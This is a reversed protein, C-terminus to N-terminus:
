QHPQLPAHGAGLTKGNRSFLIWAGNPPWGKAIMALCDIQIELWAAHNRERISGANSSRRGQNKKSAMHM